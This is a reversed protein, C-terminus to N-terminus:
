TISNQLNEKVGASSGTSGITCTKEPQRVTAFCGGINILMLDTTQLIAGHERWFNQKDTAVPLTLLGPHLIQQWTPRNCIKRLELNLIIQEPQGVKRSTSGLIEDTKLMSIEIEAIMGPYAKKQNFFTFM